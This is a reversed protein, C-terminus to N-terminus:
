PQEDLTAGQYPALYDLHVVMMRRKQKTCAFTGLTILVGVGRVRLSSTAEEKAQTTAQEEV